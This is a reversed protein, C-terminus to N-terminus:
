AGPPAYEAPTRRDLLGPPALLLLQQYLEAAPRNWAPDFATLARAAQFHVDLMGRAEALRAAELLDAEANVADHLGARLLLSRALLEDMQCARAQRVAQEALEAADANRGELTAVLVLAHDAVVQTLPVQGHVAFDRMRRSWLRADDRQESFAHTSTLGSLALSLRVPDGIEESASVARAMLAAAEDYRAAYMMVLGRRHWVDVLHPPYASLLPEAVELEELAKRYRGQSISVTARNVQRVGVDFPSGPPSLPPALIEEAQALRGMAWYTWGLNGAYWAPDPPQGELGPVPRPQFSEYLRAAEELRGAVWLLLAHENVIESRGPALAQATLIAQEAEAYQGARLQVAFRVRWLEAQGPPPLTRSALEAAQAIQTLADDLRGCLRYLEALAGRVEAERQESPATLLAALMAEEAGPPDQGRLAMGLGYHADAVSVDGPQGTTLARRFDAAADAWAGRGLAVWGARVWHPAANPLQGAAEWHLALHEPAAAKPHAADRTQLHAAISAHLLARVPAPVSRQAAQAILDHAFGSGSIIQAAELEAWPQVLDLPQVGIVHAALEADFESGAVAAVRALRLAPDSVRELRRRLLPELQPPSPLADPNGEQAAPGGADLVSRLTELVFLPNGGTHRWLAEVKAAGAVSAPMEEAHRHRLFARTLAEVGSAPLPQLDVSMAAGGEVQRELTEMRTSSLEGQRFTVGVRVGLARWAPQSAIFLWAEWSREDTWQDDDFLLSGAGGAGREEQVSLALPLLSTVLRTMAELFRRQAAVSRLPEPAPGDPRLDPLLHAAEALVWDELPAPPGLLAADQHTKLLQRALRGLALYPVAEDNPRAELCLVPGRARLVDMLLRTKGMGPPGSVLVTQGADLAANLQAWEAERGTLPPRWRTPRQVRSEAGAQRIQDALALTEPLPSVGLERRLAERCAQFAALAAARDGRRVHLTMILRYAPESLPDLELLRTAGRLASNLDGAEEDALCQRWLTTHLLATQREREALLWEEFAPCDSFDQGALLEGEGALDALVGRGFATARFQTIDPQVDNALSLLREGVVLEAGYSRLRWLMQRLNTRASADPVNPWLLGAIRERTVQGEVCIYALMGASKRELLRVRGEVVLSPAGLLNLTVVPAALTM